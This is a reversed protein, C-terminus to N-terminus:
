SFGMHAFIMVIGCTYHLINVPTIVLRGNLGMYEYGYRFKGTCQKIICDDVTRDWYFRLQSEWAFEKANLVSERVFGDVIDRAHVDIILLTNVKKRLISPLNERVKAVLDNLQKTLKAELEKMAYKNGLKVQRFSDEVEWTWWIQSGVLGIMGLVKDLWDTRDHAAYIFVGEKTTERLTAHMEAETDLMWEEVKKIGGPKELDVPTKMVFGEKEVSSMGEVTKSGRGFSLDKVNDFLKLLHVQISTPDSSGLVSLLEDDSIFFFRPFAARKVDLYDSLSKQCGDLRASLDHLMGLRNDNTCADIVNPNKQVVVMIGQFLKNITDFKNAEEPLQMRIDESGKFIGELYMWKRQVVFWEDLCESVLLLKKEWMRVKDVFAGVFRSGGISQLTLMNDELELKMDDVPKLVLGRESMDPRKAKVIQLATRRWLAEIKDLDAEIKAESTAEEIIEDIKTGFKHLEMSFIASLTLSRLTTDFNVETVEKVKKWHREKMADNKLKVVLPLAEESNQIKNEVLKFVAHERVDKFRELKCQKKFDTTGNKLANIDLDGWMTSAMTNQFDRFGTYLDYIKDLVEMEAVTSNLDPYPKVDLGFLNQANVLSAKKKTLKEIKVKYDAMLEVGDELNISSIGPGSMRFERRLESIVERFEVDQDSTVQRFQQKTDALRLDRTKSDVFLKHWREGLGVVSELEVTPVSIHYRELARFRESVELLDLDMNPSMKSIDHIVNLVFKLQDLDNTESVLQVELLSISDVLRALLTVSSAHLAEGYADRWFEAQRSIGAIV